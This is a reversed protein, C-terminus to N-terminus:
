TRTYTLPEREVDIEEVIKKLKQVEEITETVNLEIDFNKEWEKVQNFIITYDSKDNM